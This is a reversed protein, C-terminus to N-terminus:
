AIEWAAERVAESVTPHPFVIQKLNSVRLEQELVAAAGIESAYAAVVHMGLVRDTVADAVLKVAGFWRSATNPRMARLPISDKKKVGRSRADAETAGVGAAEPMGYVVWPIAGYRTRDPSSVPGLEERELAQMASGEFTLREPAVGFREGERAVMSHKACSLLTKTPICGVNRYTGGLPGKGAPLVKRGAPAQREAGASRRPFRGSCVRLQRGFTGRLASHWAEGARGIVAISELVPVGDGEVQLRKLVIGDAGAAVEFMAKDTEVERVVPDASVATGGAVKWALLVCSEVTNGQRPM